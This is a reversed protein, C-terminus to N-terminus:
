AGDTSELTPPLVMQFDGTRAQSCYWGVSLCFCFAVFCFASVMTRTQLDSLTTSSVAPFDMGAM